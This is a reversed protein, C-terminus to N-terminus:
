GTCVLGERQETAPTLCHTTDLKSFHHLNLESFIEFVLNAEYLNLLVECSQDLFITHLWNWQESCRSIMEAENSVTNPLITNKSLVTHFCPPKKKLTSEAVQTSVICHELSEKMGFAQPGRYFSFQKQMVNCVTAYPRFNTLGADSSFIKRQPCSHLHEFIKWSHFSLQLQHLNQLAM